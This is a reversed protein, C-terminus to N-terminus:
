RYNQPPLPPQSHACGTREQHGRRGEARRALVAYRVGKKVSLLRARGASVSPDARTQSSFFTFLAVQGSAVDVLSACGSWRAETCALVPWSVGTCGRFLCVSQWMRPPLLRHRGRACAGRPAGVAGLRRDARRYLDAEDMLDRTQADCLLFFLILMECRLACLSGCHLSSARSRDRGGM